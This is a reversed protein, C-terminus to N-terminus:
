PMKPSSMRLPTSTAMACRPPLTNPLGMSTSQSSSSVLGCGATCFTVRSIESSTCIIKPATLEAEVMAMMFMALCRLTGCRTVMDASSLIM